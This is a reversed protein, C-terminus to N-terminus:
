YLLNYNIYLRYKQLRFRFKIFSTMASKKYYYSNFIVRIDADDRVEFVYMGLCLEDDADVPFAFPIEPHGVLSVGTPSVM